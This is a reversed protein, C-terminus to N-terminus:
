RSPGATRAMTLATKWWRRSWSRRTPTAWSLAASLEDAEFVAEAGAAVDEVEVALGDVHEGLEGM